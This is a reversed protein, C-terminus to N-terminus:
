AAKAIEVPKFGFSECSYARGDIVVVDGTCMSRNRYDAPHDINFIEFAKEAIKLDSDGELEFEYVKTLRDGKEYGTFPLKHSAEAFLEENLLFEVKKM